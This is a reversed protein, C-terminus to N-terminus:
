LNINLHHLTNQIQNAQISDVIFVPMHIDGKQASSGYYPILYVSDDIASPSIEKFTVNHEKLHQRFQRNPISIGVSQGKIAHYTAFRIASIRASPLVGCTLALASSILMAYFLPVYLYKLKTYRLSVYLALSPILWLQPIYRAWWSQDFILCSALASLAIYTCVKPIRKFSIILIAFSLILILGMLPGYGGIRQDYTPLNISFISNFFDIFRGNGFLMPTNGTMIDTFDDGMLPYLPHGYNILNTLYPNTNLLLGIFISIISSIFLIKFNHFDSKHILWIATLSLILMEYAFINFKTGISLIICCGYPIMLWIYQLQNNLPQSCIRIILIITLLFYIYGAFDIYFTLLQSCIIPSLAIAFSILTIYPKKYSLTQSCFSKVYFYCSLTLILNISKGCEINNFTLAISAEIIELAKAYHISWRPINKFEFPSYPNWGNLLLSITEQHYFNGDFSNDNFLAAIFLCIILVTISGVIFWVFSKIPTYGRLKIYSTGIAFLVACPSIMSNLVCGCLLILSSIVFTYTAILLFLLGYEESLEVRFLYPYKHKFLNCNSYLYMMM